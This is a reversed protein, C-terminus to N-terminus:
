RWPEDVRALPVAAFAVGAASAVQEDEETDGVHLTREPAVELLELARHLIAPDPKAVGADASTVVPARLEAVRRHLSVDWNSVIALALGRARLREVADRAGEIWEFVLAGVYEAATLSSGLATNFVGVCRENLDALSPSDRAEVAHARYYTFEQEFAKDIAARDFEPLLRALNGIPDRLELLTGYADLTVADLDEPRM